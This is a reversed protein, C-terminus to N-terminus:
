NVGWLKRFQSEGDPIEPWYKEAAVDWTIADKTIVQGGPKWKKNASDDQGTLQRAITDAAVWQITRLPYGMDAVQVSDDSIRKFAPQAGGQSVAKVQEDLGANRLAEPVGNLMDSFYFYLYNVKPHTQLYSVIKGPLATALESNLVKVYDYTCGPCNDAFQKKIAQETPPWTSAEPTGFVAVNAKGESDAIVWDALASSKVGIDASSFVNTVGEATKDEAGALVVPIGAAKLQDFQRKFKSIDTQLVAVADPKDDVARNFAGQFDDATDGVDVATAQMGLLTAAKVFEDGQYAQTPISKSYLVYVRKGTPLQKLPETLGIETLPKTYDAINAKARELGAAVAASDAAPADTAGGGTNGGCAATLLVSGAVLPLLIRRLLHRTRLM